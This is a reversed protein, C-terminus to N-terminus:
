GGVFLHIHGGAVELRPVTTDVPVLTTIAEASTTPVTNGSLSIDTGRAVELRSVATDVLVSTTTAEALTTLVTDGQESIILPGRPPRRSYTGPLRKEVATTKLNLSREGESPSGLSPSIGELPQAKNKKSKVQKWGQKLDEPTESPQDLPHATDLPTPLPRVPPPAVDCKHGFVGCKSCELLKWEYDVVISRTVGDVNAEVTSVRPRNAQIEMCVRVFSIM